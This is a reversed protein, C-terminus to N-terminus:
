LSKIERHSKYWVLDFPESPKTLKRTSTEELTKVPLFIRPFSAAYIKNRWVVRLANLWSTLIILHFWYLHVYSIFPLKVIGDLSLALPHVLHAFRERFGLIFVTLGLLSNRYKHRGALPSSRAGSGSNGQRTKRKICALRWNKCIYWCNCMYKGMDSFVYQINLTKHM